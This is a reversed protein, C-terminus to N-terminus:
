RARKTPSCTSWRPSVLPTLHPLKRGAHEDAQWEASSYPVQGLEENLDSTNVEANQDSEKHYLDLDWSIFFSGLFKQMEVTVYLSIPIIFNYLVMFALFDAIFKLIQSSFVSPSQLHSSALTRDTLLLISPAQFAAKGKDRDYYKFDNGARETHALVELRAQHFRAVSM